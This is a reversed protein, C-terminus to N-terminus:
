CLIVTKFINIFISGIRKLRISRFDFIPNNYFIVIFKPMIIIKYLMVTIYFYKMKSNENRKPCRRPKKCFKKYEIIVMSVGLDELIKFLYEFITYKNGTDGDFIVSKNTVDLLYRM